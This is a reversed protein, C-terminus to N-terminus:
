SRKEIMDHAEDLAIVLRNFLDDIENDQIIMPPCIGVVDGPLGRVILGNDLARAAM